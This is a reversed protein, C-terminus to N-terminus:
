RTVLIRGNLRKGDLDARVFYVGPGPRMGAGGASSSWTLRHVGAGLPGRGLIGM